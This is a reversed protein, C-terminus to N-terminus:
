QDAVLNTFITPKVEPHESQHFRFGWHQFQYREDTIEVLVVEDQYDKVSSNYEGNGAYSAIAHADGFSFHGRCGVVQGINPHKILYEFAERTNSATRALCEQLRSEIESVEEFTVGKSDDFVNQLANVVTTIVTLAQKLNLAIQQKDMKEGLIDLYQNFESDSFWDVLLLPKTSRGELDWTIKWLKKDREATGTTGKPVGSFAIKTMIKM